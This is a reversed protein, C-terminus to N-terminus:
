RIHKPEFKLLILVRFVRQHPRVEWGALDGELPFLNPHFSVERGEEWIFGTKKGATITTGFSIIFVFGFFLWEIRHPLFCINICVVVIAVFFLGWHTPSHVLLVLALTLSNCKDFDSILNGQCGFYLNVSAQEIVLFDGMHETSMSIILMDICCCFLCESQM